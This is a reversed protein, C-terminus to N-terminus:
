RPLAAHGIGQLSEARLEDVPAPGVQSPQLRQRFPVIFHGGNNM